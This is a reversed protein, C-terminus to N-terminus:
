EEPQERRWRAIEDCTAVWLRPYELLERLISEVARVRVPRGSGYGGRPHVALNFLGGDQYVASLEQGWASAVAEPPRRVRYYPRDSAQPFHPLEVLPQSGDIPVLYPVDDDCFSSDYLYGRRALITRTEGTMLGDPARWGLPARGFVRHFVAEGRALIADQETADLASFDEYAYGRGAAEHGDNAIREMVEPYREADWAAIFVTARVEHRALADLIRQAGAQAGYRGFSSRGWLPQDPMSRQEVSEGDFNVTVCAAARYGDPWFGEISM